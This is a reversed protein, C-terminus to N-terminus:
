AGHYRKISYTDSSIGNPVQFMGGMTSQNQTASTGNGSSLMGGLTSDWQPKSIGNLSGSPAFKPHAVSNLAAARQDLPTPAFGENFAATRSQIGDM